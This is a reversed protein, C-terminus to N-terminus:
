QMALDPNEIFVRCSFMSFEHLLPSKQSHYLFINWSAIFRRKRFMVVVTKLRQKVRKFSVKYSTNNITILISGFSLKILKWLVSKSLDDKMKSYM